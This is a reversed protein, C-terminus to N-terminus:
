LNTTVAPDENSRNLLHEIGSSTIEAVASGHLYYYGLGANVDSLLDLANLLADAVGDYQRAVSASTPPPANPTATSVAPCVKPPM